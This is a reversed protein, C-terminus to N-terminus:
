TTRHRVRGGLEMRIVRPYAEHGDTTARDPIVGTVVKASRFFHKAAALDRHESLM